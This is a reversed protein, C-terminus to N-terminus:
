HHQELPDIEVTSNLHSSTEGRCQKGGGIVWVPLCTRLFKSKPGM